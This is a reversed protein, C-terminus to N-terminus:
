KTPANDLTWQPTKARKAGYFVYILLGIVLWGLVRFWTTELLPFLMAGCVIVGLIPIVPSLPVRFPRVVNPRSSRLVIVGICVLIFALLTGASVMDGLFDLPFVGALTAVLAGIIITSTAPTKFRPHVQAFVQPLFGDRAMSYFIRTQGYLSVLIVTSLGTIAGLNVLPLMWSISPGGAAVAVSVPNDVNLTSYHALGTMTLSMLIYLLTCIALSGLIGIPLDRQPNRAEQAAVSVSDFGIYAFFIAGAGALIGSWGFSGFKGTNEPVFPTLNSTDILPLGFIIVALVVGVKLLVMFGNFTASARIGVVLLTTVFVVIAVAPVNVIAGTLILGGGPGQAVPAASLAAPLIIGFDQLIGKLYGAWGVAVTSAAVGYELCLDWGIIWGVFRGFAAYAYTYASGSQPIMAALEAYCLGAFACGICAVVFSLVIAPGAHEAAATGTIVFIGAGIIAGIGIAVLHWPGLTRRLDSAGEADNTDKAELGAMHTGKFNLHAALRPAFCTDCSQWSTGFVGFKRADEPTRLLRKVSRFLILVNGIRPM